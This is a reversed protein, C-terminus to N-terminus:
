YLKSFAEQLRELGATTQGGDTIQVFGGYVWFCIYADGCAMFSLLAKTLVAPSLALSLM